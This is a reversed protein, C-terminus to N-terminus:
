GLMTPTGAQVRCFNNSIVTADMLFRPPLVLTDTRATVNSKQVPGLIIRDVSLHREKAHLLSMLLLLWFRRHAGRPEVGTTKSAILLRKGLLHLKEQLQYNKRASRTRRTMEIKGCPPPMTWPVVSFLPGREDVAFRLQAPDGAVLLIILCGFIRIEPARRHLIPRLCELRITARSRFLPLRAVSEGRFFRLPFVRNHSRPYRRSLRDREM